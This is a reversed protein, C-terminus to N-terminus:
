DCLHLFRPARGSMLNYVAETGRVNITVDGATNIEVYVQLYIVRGVTGGRVDETSVDDHAADCLM